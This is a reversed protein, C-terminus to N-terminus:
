VRRGRCAASVPSSQAGLEPAAPVWRRCRPGETGLATQPMCALRPARPSGCRYVDHKTDFLRSKERIREPPLYAITGFLGDMSLDQSHSLGNCKALGFDSIQLPACAPPEAPAPRGAPSPGGRVPSCGRRASGPGLSVRPVRCSHGAGAPCAPSRRCTSSLPRRTLLGTLRAFECVAGGRGWRSREAILPRRCRCWVCTQYADGGAPCRPGRREPGVGWRTEEPCLHGSLERVCVTPATSLWLSQPAGATGGPGGGGSGRFCQTHSSAVPVPM